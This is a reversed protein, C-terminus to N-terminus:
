SFLVKKFHCIRAALVADIAGWNCTLILSPSISYIIRALRLTCSFSSGKMNRTIYDVKIGDKILSRADLKQDMALITHCFYEPLSNIIMSTRVQPGGPLFTSFVHFLQIRNTMM